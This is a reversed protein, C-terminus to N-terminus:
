NINIYTSSRPYNFENDLELTRKTHEDIRYDGAVSEKMALKHELRSILQHSRESLADM